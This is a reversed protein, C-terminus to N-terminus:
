KKEAKEAKVFHVEITNDSSQHDQIVRESYDKHFRTKLVFITAGLDYQKRQGTAKAVLLTEFFKLGAQYGVDKAAKWEPYKKEWEYFTQVTVGVDLTFTSYSQGKSM